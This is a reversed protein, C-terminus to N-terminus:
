LNSIYIEGVTVVSLIEVFIIVVLVTFLAFFFLPILLKLWKLQYPAKELGRFDYFSQNFYPQNPDQQGEPKGPDPKTRHGYLYDHLRRFFLFLAAKVISLLGAFIGFTAILAQPWNFSYSSSTQVNGVLLYCLFSVLITWTWSNFKLFTILQKM